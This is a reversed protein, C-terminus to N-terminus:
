RNLTADPGVMCDPRCPRRALVVVEQSDQARAEEGEDEGTGEGSGPAEQGQPM